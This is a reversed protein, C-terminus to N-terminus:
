NCCFFPLYVLNKRKSFPLYVLNELLNMNGVGACAKRCDLCHKSTWPQIILVPAKQLLIVYKIKKRSFKDSANGEQQEHRNNCIRNMLSKLM